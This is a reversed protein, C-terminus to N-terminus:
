GGGAPEAIERDVEERFARAGPLWGATQLYATRTPLRALVVRANSAELHALLADLSHLEFGSLEPRHFHDRAINM